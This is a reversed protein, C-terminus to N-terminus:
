RPLSKGRRVVSIAQDQIYGTQLEEGCSPNFLIRKLVRAPYETDFLIHQHNQGSLIMDLEVLQFIM